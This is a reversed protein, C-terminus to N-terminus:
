LLNNMYYYAVLIIHTLLQSLSCFAQNSRGWEWSWFVQLNVATCVIIWDTVKLKHTAPWLFVTTAVKHVDM